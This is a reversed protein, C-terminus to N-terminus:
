GDGWRRRLAEMVREARRRVELDDSELAQYLAPLAPEGIKELARSAASREDFSDSSLQKVLKAIDADDQARCAPAATLLVALACPALVLHKM